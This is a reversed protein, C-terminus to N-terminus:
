MSVEFTEGVEVSGGSLTVNPCGAAIACAAELSEAEVLGYGTVANAGGGDSTGDAGVTKITGVPAGMDTFAGENAGFWAGWAAMHEQQEAESEPMGGGHYSFLYKAM